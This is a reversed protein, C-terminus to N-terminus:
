KGSPHNPGPSAAFPPPTFRYPFFFSAFLGIFSVLGGYLVPDFYLGLKYTISPALNAFLFSYLNYLMVAFDGAEHAKPSPAVPIPVLLLYLLHTLWFAAFGSIAAVLFARSTKGRFGCLQILGGVAALVLLGLGYALWLINFYNV